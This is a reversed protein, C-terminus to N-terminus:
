MDALRKLPLLVGGLPPGRVGEELRPRHLALRVRGIVGAVEEIADLAALRAGAVDLDAMAVGAGRDDAVEGVLEFGDELPVGQGARGAADRPGGPTEPRLADPAAM